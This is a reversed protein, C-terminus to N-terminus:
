WGEASYFRDVAYCLPREVADRDEWRPFAERISGRYANMFADRFRRDAGHLQLALYALAGDHM